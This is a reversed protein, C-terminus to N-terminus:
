EQQSALQRWLRALVRPHERELREQQVRRLLRGSCPLEAVLTPSVRGDDLPRWRSVATGAGVSGLRRAAADPAQGSAYAGLRGSLLLLLVEDDAALVRDGRGWAQAPMAAGLVTRAEEDLSALVDHAEPKLAADPALSAGHSELLADECWELAEEPSPLEVAAHPLLGRRHPDGVAVVVGRSGLELVAADLMRAAGPHLRSVGQLDLVRWRAGAPVTGLSQLVVEAAAFEIDGQLSRVDIADGHAQLVDREARRRRRGSQLTLASGTRTIVPASRGPHHMLHLQFREALRRSAAAARVSNGGADLLPSFLGIGFQGPSAAVLGGSVGSKAPLGVRLLWEGASDYMGCSAMVALVHEAVPQPVVVAKTCPNVGGNALTAAMVAVDAATALLACQRFYVDLTEDVGCRLSGANRMLWALARNRDGTELESTFVAEDMELRRGAFASLVVRIREFRAVPDSARVLSTTLIAGANIMPNLPRGSGPELSIANFAEGSPEVGVRSLVEDLGLDALALAYVFPKSVSQLTFPVDADGAKYLRGDMTALALGFLGPDVKALQPIYTALAGSSDSALSDRIEKLAATIPDSAGKPTAAELTPKGRRM